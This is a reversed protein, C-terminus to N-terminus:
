TIGMKLAVLPEAFGLTINLFFRGTVREEETLDRYFSDQAIVVVAQENLREMILNCATTKGSATGGCVGIFFPEQRHLRMASGKSSLMHPAAGRDDDQDGM